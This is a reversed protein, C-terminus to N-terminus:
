MYYLINVIKSTDKLTASMYDIPVTELALENLAKSGLIYVHEVFWVTIRTTWMCM